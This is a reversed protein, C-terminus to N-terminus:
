KNRMYAQIIALCRDSNTKGSRRAVVTAHPWIGVPDVGFGAQLFLHLLRECGREAAVHVPHSHCRPGLKQLLYTCSEVMGRMCAIEMLSTSLVPRALEDDPTARLLACFEEDSCKEEARQWKDNWEDDTRRWHLFLATADRTTIQGEMQNVYKGHRYIKVQATSLEDCFDPM